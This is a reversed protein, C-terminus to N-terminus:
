PAEMTASVLELTDPNIEIRLVAKLECGSVGGAAVACEKSSAGWSVAVTKDPAQTVPLWRVVNTPKIRYKSSHKWSPSTLDMWRHTLPDLVQITAGNAWAIILDAHPHRQTM